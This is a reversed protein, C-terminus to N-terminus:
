KYIISDILIANDYDTKALQKRVRLYDNERRLGLTWVRFIKFILDWGECVFIERLRFKMEWVWYKQLNSVLPGNRKVMLFKLTYTTIWFIQGPVITNFAFTTLVTKRIKCSFSKFIKLMWHRKACFRFRLGLM